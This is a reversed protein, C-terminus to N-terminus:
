RGGVRADLFEGYATCAGCMPGSGDIVRECEPCMPTDVAESLDCATDEAQSPGLAVTLATQVRPDGCIRTLADHRRMDGVPLTRVLLTDAAHGSLARLLEPLIYRPDVVVQITVVDSGDRHQEAVREVRLPHASSTRDPLPIVTM